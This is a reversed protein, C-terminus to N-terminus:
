QGFIECHQHFHLIWHVSIQINMTNLFILIEIKPTPIYEMAELLNLVYNYGGLWGSNKILPIAVKIKKM